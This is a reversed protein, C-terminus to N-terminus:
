LITPFKISKLKDAQRIYDGNKEDDAIDQFKICKAAAEISEIAERILDQDEKSWIANTDIYYRVLGDKWKKIDSQDNERLAIDGETPESFYEDGFALSCCLLLLFLIKSNM